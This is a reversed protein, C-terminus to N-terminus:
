SSKAQNHKITRAMLEAIKDMQLRAVEANDQDSTLTPWRTNVERIFTRRHQDRFLDIAFFGAEVGASALIKTSADITADFADPPISDQDIYAYEDGGAPNFARVLGYYNDHSLGGDTVNDVFCYMRLEQSDSNKIHTRDTDTLGRFADWHEGRAFEQVIIDRNPREAAALDSRIQSLGDLWDSKDCISLYRSASGSDAKVVIRDGPIDDVFAQEPHQEASVLKTMPMYSSLTEYQKWKSRGFSLLKEGNFVPIYDELEAPTRIRSRVTEIGGVGLPQERKASLILGSKGAAITYTTASQDSFHYSNNSLIFSAAIGYNGLAKILEPNRYKNLVEQAKGFEDEGYETQIAAQGDFHNKIIDNM